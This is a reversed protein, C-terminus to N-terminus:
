FIHEFITINPSSYIQSFSANKQFQASDFKPNVIIFRVRLESYCKQALPTNPTSIMALTCQERDPNDEYRKFFSRSLPYNYGRDFFLKMWTDSAEIFNHDKLILDKETSNKKLYTAAEFTELVYQGQSQTTLTHANDGLGPLILSLFLLTIGFLLIPKKLIDRTFFLFDKQLTTLIFFFTGLSLVGLPFSTYNAIRNSPINVFLLGPKLTMILLISGWAFLLIGAPSRRFNKLFPILCLMFFSAGVKWASNSLTLQFLTLGTRTEKIPTGIATGLAQTELYTPLAIFFAFAILGFCFLLIPRRLSLALWEKWRILTERGLFFPSLIVFTAIVYLLIFTSLHHTYALTTSLFLLTLLLATNKAELTLIFFLLILPLFFNGFLNGVVGGSIFKAEPSALSFLCGFLFLGGLFFHEPTVTKWILNKILSQGFRFALSTLALFAAINLLFLLLLPEASFYSNNTLTHLLALPIHEGVIFDSIPEPASLAYSDNEAQVIDQKQYLPLSQHVSISQTWYLHHGLDTATPLITQGLYFVKLFFAL